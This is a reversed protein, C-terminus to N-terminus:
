SDTSLSAGYRRDNAYGSEICCAAWIPYRAVVRALWLEMVRDYNGAPAPVTAASTWGNLEMLDGEAGGHDLWTVSTTVSGTRSCGSGASGAVASSLRYIGSATTSHRAM